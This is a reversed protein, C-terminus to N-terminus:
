GGFTPIFFYDLLTLYRASATAGLDEGDCERQLRGALGVRPRDVPHTWVEGTTFALVIEDGKRLITAGKKAGVISITQIFPGAPTM